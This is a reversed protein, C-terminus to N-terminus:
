CLKLILCLGKFKIKSAELYKIKFTFLSLVLFIIGRFFNGLFFFLIGFFKSFYSYHRNFLILMSRIHNKEHFWKTKATGGKLHLLNSHPYYLIKGGCDTFRKCLDNDEGYFFFDEDFGNLEIIDKKNFLMFAGTVIEVETTSVIGKNMLYYKNFYKSKPFLLYLFFYTTFSLWLTQFSYVSKQISRDENLLRPAILVKRNENNILYENRLYDLLIKLTNEIFITDNNLFLIYDGKAIKLGQNNAKGFGRNEKNKIVTLKENFKNEIKQISDDRSNNDVVILEYTLEKTYKEVSELCNLLLDGSNFNVIIISIDIKSKDM